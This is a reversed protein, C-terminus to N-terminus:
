LAMEEYMRAVMREIDPAEVTLDALPCAEALRAILRAPDVRAPLFTIEANLGDLSVSEAEPLDLSECPRALRARIVRHPAYRARLGDMDGDFLLAGRGIVMVRSCLAEIDDMDHTTLLMTVGERRNLDALFARLALKTVADLGITPEDLFLIRPAHLLAGILECKMRQGLSLQRVPTNLLSGADLLATLDDLRRKYAAQPVRYIDRLLEFSDLVPTDWWLQSRQGFVVGIQSVHAAREKWPTRGMINIEGSDPVLIGSMMKITTSKGAGNPGIYGVLEGEEVSFSVDRVARVLEKERTFAGRMAGLMGKQRKRLVFTKCVQQLVIQPM